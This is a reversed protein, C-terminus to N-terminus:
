LRRSVRDHRFLCTVLRVDRLSLRHSKAGLYLYRAAPHPVFLFQRRTKCTVWYINSKSANALPAKLTTVIM